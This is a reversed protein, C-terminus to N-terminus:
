PTAQLLGTRSARQLDQLSLSDLELANLISNESSFDRGFMASMISIGAEHLIAPQDALRGLAATLYLGYPVDETVFRNDARIPGNGFKIQQCMESISAVPVHFSQHMHEFITKVDVGLAKAIALRETDLQEILRGVNPTINEGMDWTEGREMRTMNALAIALHNQPNFNSLSIALLGDRLKFRDGFLSQCVALASDTETEPVTYFDVSDRMPKVRVTAGNVKGSAITSGWATIPPHIGRAVLIRMLYVAGMSSHSSVIIHQGDRINPALADMVAKHGYGPVAIMLVDNEEVLQQPSQAVKPAFEAEVGGIAHLPASELVKTGKGSPSWLMPVHDRDHLIAATSFAIPGAGAIGISIQESM